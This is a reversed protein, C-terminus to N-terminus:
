ESYKYKRSGNFAIRSIAGNKEPSVKIKTKGTKCSCTTEFAKFVVCFLSHLLLAICIYSWVFFMAFFGHNEGESSGPCDEASLNAVFSPNSSDEM